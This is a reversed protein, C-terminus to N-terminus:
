PHDMYRLAVQLCLQIVRRGAAVIAAFGRRAFATATARQTHKGGVDGSAHWGGGHILVVVPRPAAPSKGSTYIDLLLQQVTGTASTPASSIQAGGERINAYYIDVSFSCRASRTFIIEIRWWKAIKRAQCGTSPPGM